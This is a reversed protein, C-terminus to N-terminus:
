NKLGLEGKLTKSQQHKYSVPHIEGRSLVPLLIEPDPLRCYGVYTSHSKKGHGARGHMSGTTKILMRLKDDSCYLVPTEFQGANLYGVRRGMLQGGKGDTIPTNITRRKTWHFTMDDHTLPIAGGGRWREAAPKTKFEAITDLTEPSLYPAPDSGSPDAAIEFMHDKLRKLGAM